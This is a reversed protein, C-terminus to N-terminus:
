RNLSPLIQIFRLNFKDINFFIEFLEEFENVQTSCRGQFCGEHEDEHVRWVSKSLGEVEWADHGDKESAQDHGVVGVVIEWWDCADCDLLDEACKGENGLCTDKGVKAHGDKAESVDELGWENYKADDHTKDRSSGVNKGEWHEQISESLM